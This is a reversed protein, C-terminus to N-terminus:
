GSCSLVLPPTWNQILWSQSNWPSGQTATATSVLTRLSAPAINYALHGLVYYIHGMTAVM